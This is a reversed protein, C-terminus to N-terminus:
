QWRFTRGTMLQLADNHSAFRAALRRAVGADLSDGAAANRVAGSPFGFSPLALFSRVEDLTGAPDAYYDEASLVLLRDREYWRLWERLAVDYEGQRAYSQQEHAYSYFRPDRALREAAGAIRDEEAALADVFALPEAGERRREKWHSYARLVPDRLIVILRTTPVTAHAREAAAPHFLYYPSAEGAVAAHGYRAAHREKSRRSPLYSRFWREGRFFNSDFYHIGKTAEAKLLPHPPPFLAVVGPHALLDFYLSTSGGRKAGIIMFDPDPRNAATIMGYRRVAARGVRGAAARPRGVHSRETGARPEV